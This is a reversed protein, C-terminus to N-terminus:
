LETYGNEFQTKPSWSIYNDFPAPMKSNPSDLYEILYGEDAGDEDDPLDWGRLQNYEGRTMPQANVIKHSRYQKM